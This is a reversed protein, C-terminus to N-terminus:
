TRLWATKAIKKQRKQEKFRELDKKTPKKRKKGVEEGKISGGQEALQQQWADVDFYAHSMRKMREYESVHTPDRGDPRTFQGTRANFKAQFIPLGDPGIASTGPVSSALSPDLHALSPDIGQAAAAAQLAAYHALAPNTTGASIEPEPSASSSASTVPAPAPVPAPTPSSSSATPQLPNTWTTEQTEANYFYYANYQPSFIAQWAQKEPAPTEGTASTSGERENTRDDDEDEVDEVTVKQKGKANQGEVRETEEGVEPKEETKRQEEKKESTNDQQGRSISQKENDAM